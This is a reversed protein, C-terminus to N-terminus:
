PLPKPDDSLSRLYAILNARDQADKLGAFGMKTGPAFDKPKTLFANLREYSWQGGLDSLASSYSYGEHSAVTRGVVDWLNPGVKNPGGKDFSHCAACKKSIKAGANKDASALLTGIKPGNDSSAAENAAPKAAPTKAGSDQNDALLPYAPKNLEKPHYLFEGGWYAILAVWIGVLLSLGLYTIFAPNKSM